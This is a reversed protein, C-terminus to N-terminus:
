QYVQGHLRPNSLSPHPFGLKDEELSKTKIQHGIKQGSMLVIHKTRDIGEGFISQHSLAETTSNYDAL